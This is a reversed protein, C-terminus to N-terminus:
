FGNSDGGKSICEIAEKLEKTNEAGLIAALILIKEM